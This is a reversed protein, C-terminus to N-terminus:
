WSDFYKSLFWLKNQKKKKKKGKKKKEKQGDDPFSIRCGASPSDM